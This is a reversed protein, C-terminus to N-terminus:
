SIHQHNCRVLEDLLSTKTSIFASMIEHGYCVNKMM